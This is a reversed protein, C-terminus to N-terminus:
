VAITSGGEGQKGYRMVALSLYQKGARIMLGLEIFQKLLATVEGETAQARVSPTDILARVTKAADCLLYVEAAIGDFQYEKLEGCTRTDVIRIFRPAPFADLVADTRSQWERVAQVTGRTYNASDDPYDADFYYAIQARDDEALSHYVYQYAPTPKLNTLGYEAPDNVYASGRDFRIHGCSMPPELHILLPLLNQIEAYEAPDESPLGYLLNWKVRLNFQRCWKLTQINQIRTVGKRMLHLISDSLSEIGAQFSQVGARALLAIQDRRLNAKIDLYTITVGLPKAVLDPLLTKWYKHDLINDGIIFSSGYRHKLHTMEDRVRNASKSRFATTLGNFGCFTCPHVQGWWCGRSMEIPVSLGNPHVLSSAHQQAFYDTYDAYPLEDLNDVRPTLCDPTCTRRNVRTVMGPIDTTPRGAFFHEVFQPFVQDGEGTCVFDLFPFTRHLGVGMEGRCNAGGLGVRVEPYGTKILRALALSACNQAISSTFGVVAYRSWDVAEACGELFAPIRARVALLALTNTPTFPDGGQGWLIETVFKADAEPNPGLLAKAFMWDGLLAPTTPLAAFAGYVDTGLQAAFTLNFYYVDGPIGRQILAAKLLSLGISPYDYPSFPMCVLAVQQNTPETM